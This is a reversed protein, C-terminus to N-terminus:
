GVPAVTLLWRAVYQAMHELAYGSADSSPHVYDRIFRDHLSISQEIGGDEVWLHASNDWYGNTKITHDTNWGLYEWQKFIPINWDEAVQMQHEPVASLRDDYEGIMIIRAKNDNEYIFRFLFNCAGQWTYLNYKGYRSIVQDDRLVVGNVINDDYQNDNHGHDFIWYDVDGDELYKKIKIQYSCSRVFAADFDDGSEPRITFVPRGTKDVDAYHEILWDMEEITNTLCRSCKYWNDVFGYPNYIPDVRQLKKCHVSSEGVAENIVTAGLKIGVRMPYSNENELGYEGAAPISTGLWVIKKDFYPMVAAFDLREDVYQQSAINIATKLYHIRDKNFNVYLKAGNEPVNIVREYATDPATETVAAIVNNSSDTIFWMPFSSAYQYGGIYYKQKPAVVVEYHRGTILSTDVTLDTQILGVTEEGYQSMVSYILTDYIDQAKQLSEKAISSYGAEYGEQYGTKYGVDGAYKIKAKVLKFIVAFVIIVIAIGFSCITYQKKM